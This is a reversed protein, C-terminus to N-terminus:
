APRHTHPRHRRVHRHGHRRHGHRHVRHRRAHRGKPHPHATKHMEMWTAVLAFCVSLITCSLDWGPTTNVLEFM